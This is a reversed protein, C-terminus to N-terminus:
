HISKLHHVVGGISPYSGVLVKQGVGNSFCVREDLSDVRNDPITASIPVCVITVIAPLFQYLAQAMLKQWDFPQM